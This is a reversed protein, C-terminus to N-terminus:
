EMFDDYIVLDGNYENVIIDQELARGLEKLESIYELEIVAYMDSINGKTYYTANYKDLVGKYEDLNGNWVRRIVQKM